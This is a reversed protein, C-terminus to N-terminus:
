LADDSETLAVELAAAFWATYKQPHETVDLLLDPISIWQVAAVEKPNFPIEKINSFGILVHDLENEILGNDLEARYHFGGVSKLPVHIGMEEYLRREGAVTIDEIPKPHSCCTNTWLGGSHYKDQQRQQLLLQCPQHETNFVFVSFARHLLGKQHAILKDEVGIPNNATDVLVVQNKSM